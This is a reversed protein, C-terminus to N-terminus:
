PWFFARALGTFHAFMGSGTFRSDLAAAAGFAVYAGTQSLSAPGVGGATGTAAYTQNTSINRMLINGASPGLNSASTSFAVWTGDYSLSPREGQGSPSDANGQTGDSAVSARVVSGTQTDVVFVDQVTNTDGSVVNTSTTAYAVYRGNGSIAPAVRRSVSETGGDREGGTSTLSVRQKTGAAHNAVFIDWMGNADGGVLNAAYSWFAIVNGDDSFVPFDSDGTGAAGSTNASVLTNTNASLNRRIIQAYGNLGSTINTAYTAFAVVTGDGSLAPSFSAGNGQVGATSVSARTVTDTTRNWVFVDMLSNTDGSVLNTSNSEFAVSLGDTSIVPHYSDSNGEAGTSSKSVLRTEGTLRDRWFIQRRNGSTGEIAAYSQFAVFRGEGYAQTTSGIPEKSGGIVVSSSDYYSGLVADSSSRSVKDYTFECGVLPNNAPPMTGTAGYFVSCTQNTPKEAITVAYTSGALLNTAFSFPQELYDQSTSSPVTVLLNDGGNNQLTVPTTIPAYLTGSL